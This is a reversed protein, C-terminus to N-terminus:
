TKHLANKAAVTSVIQDPNVVMAEVEGNDEYRVMMGDYGQAKLSEATHRHYRYADYAEQDKEDVMLPNILRLYVPYIAGTDDEPDDSIPKEAYAQAYDPDSTFFHGMPNDQFRDFGAFRHPVGHYMVLPRGAEDVCKSQGFWGHIDAPAEMETIPRPDYRTLLSVTELEYSHTAINHDGLNFYTIVGGQNQYQRNFDIGNHRLVEAAQYPFMVGNFGILAGDKYVPKERYRPTYEAQVSEVLFDAYDKM